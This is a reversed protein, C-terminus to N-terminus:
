EDEPVGSETLILDLLEALGRSYGEGDLEGEEGDGSSALFEASERIDIIGVLWGYAFIAEVIDGKRHKDSRAPTISRHNCMSLARALIKNPIKRGDPRSKIHSLSLSYIFNVLADGLKALHRDDVAQLPGQEPDILNNLAYGSRRDSPKKSSLVFSM